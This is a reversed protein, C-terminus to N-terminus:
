EEEFAPVPSPGLHRIRAAEYDLLEQLVQATHKGLRPPSAFQEAPTSSFQLPNGRWGCASGPRISSRSWWVLVTDEEDVALRQSKILEDKLVELHEADLQFQLQLPRVDPPGAPAPSGNGSGGGGCLGSRRRGGEHKTETRVLLEMM